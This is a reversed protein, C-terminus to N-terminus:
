IRLRILPRKVDALRRCPLLLPPSESLPSPCPLFNFVLCTNNNSEKKKGVIECNRYHNVVPILELVVAAM